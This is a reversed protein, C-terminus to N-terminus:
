SRLFEEMNVTAAAAKASGDESITFPETMDRATVRNSQKSLAARMWTLDEAPCPLSVSWDGETPCTPLKAESATDGVIADEGYLCYVRVCAEKDRVVVPSAKMAESAILCAAIGDVKMLEARSGESAILDVITAWAEPASRVPIATIRRVVVSM